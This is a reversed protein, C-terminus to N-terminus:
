SFKGIQEDLSTKSAKKICYLKFAADRLKPLKPSKSRPWNIVPSQVLLEYHLGNELCLRDFEKQSILPSKVLYFAKSKLDVTTWDNMDVVQSLSKGGRMLAIQLIPPEPSVEYISIQNPSLDVSRAQLYHIEGHIEAKDIKRAFELLGLDRSSRLIRGHFYMFESSVIWLIGAFFVAWLVRKFFVNPVSRVFNILEVTGFGVFVCTPIVYLLSRRAEFYGPSSAIFVPILYIVLSTLWLLAYKSENRRRFAHVMGALLPIVLFRNLFHAHFDNAVIPEIRQEGGLMRNLFSGLNLKLEEFGNVHSEDFFLWLRHLGHYSTKVTCIKLLIGPFISASMGCFFWLFKRGRSDNTLLILHACAVLFLCRSAGYVYFAAGTLVGLFLYPWSRRSKSIEYLCFIWFAAFAVNFSIYSGSRAIEQFVASYGLFFVAFFAVERGWYKRIWGYLVLLLVLSSTVTFLCMTGLSLGGFLKSFAFLPILYFAAAGYDASNGQPLTLTCALFAGPSHQFDYFGNIFSPFGSQLHYKVVSMSEDIRSYSITALLLFLILLVIIEALNTKNFFAARIKM